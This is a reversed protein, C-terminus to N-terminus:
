IDWPNKLKSLSQQKAHYSKADKEWHKASADDLTRYLDGLAEMATMHSPGPVIKAITHQNREIYIEQGKFEILDLIQSLRRVLETAKVTQM